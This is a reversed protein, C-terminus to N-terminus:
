CCNFAVILLAYHRLYLSAFFLFIVVSAFPLFFSSSSSGLLLLFSLLLLLRRITIILKHSHPAVFIVYMIRTHVYYLWVVVCVGIFIMCQIHTYTHSSAATHIHTPAGRKGAQTHTLTKARAMTTTTRTNHQTTNNASNLYVCACLCISRTCCPFAGSYRDCFKVPCVTGGWGGGDVGIPFWSRTTIGWFELQLFLGSCVFLLLLISNCNKLFHRQRRLRLRLQRRRSFLDFACCFNKM